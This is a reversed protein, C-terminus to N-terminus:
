RLTVTPDLGIAKMRHEIRGLLNSCKLRENENENQSNRKHRIEM